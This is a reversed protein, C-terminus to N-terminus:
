NSVPKQNERNRHMETCSLDRLGRRRRVYGMLGIGAALALMFSTPEPVPTLLFARSQGSPDSGYGVIQGVDNLAFAQGLNWGSDPSILSNLDLMQGNSYLFAFAHSLTDAEGVVQGANNIGTAFSSTINPVGIDLQTSTGGDYRFAHQGSATSTYSVQGSTNVQPQFGGNADTQGLDVEGGNVPFYLAHRPLGSRNISYGAMAGSDSISSLVLESGLVPNNVTFVPNLAPSIFGNEQGNNIAGVAKGSNNISNFFSRYVPSIAGVDIRTGTGTSYIYAHGVGAPFFSGVVQGSDNIDFASGAWTLPTLVGNSYVVPAPNANGVVQGVNNIATPIFDGLNTVTYRVESAHVPMTRYAVMGASLLCLMALSAAPGLSSQTKTVSDFTKSQKM